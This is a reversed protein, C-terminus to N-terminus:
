HMFTILEPTLDLASSVTESNRLPLFKPSNIKQILGNKLDASEKELRAKDNCSLQEFPLKQERTLSIWKKTVTKM